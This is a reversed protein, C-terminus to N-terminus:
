GSLGYGYGNIVEGTGTGLQFASDMDALMELWDPSSVSPIGFNGAAAQAAFPFTMTPFTYAPKDYNAM